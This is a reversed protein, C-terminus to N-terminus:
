RASSRDCSVHKAPDSAGANPHRDTRTRVRTASTRDADPSLSPLRVRFRTRTGAACDLEIDGGHLRVVARAYALGLGSGTSSRSDDARYYRDFVRDREGPAIGIGADCVDLVITSADRHVEVTVKGGPRSFKVANDVLNVCVRELATRDGAVVLGSSSRCALEIGQEEAAADFLEAVDCVLPGLEVPLHPTRCVGAEAESVDLAVDIMRALRDCEHVIDNAARAQADGAGNGQVSSEAIIRVRTLPSRLDHAINDTMDRMDRLLKRNRDAMANFADALNAVEVVGGGVSARRDLDGDRIAGAAASVIEIGRAARRSALWVISSALPVALAFTLAFAALLLEMMGDRGAFSEALWVVRDEGIPALITLADEERGRFGITRLEADGTELVRRAASPDADIDDWDSLDSALLRRGDGDLLVIFLEDLDGEAGERAIQDAVAADGSEAWGTRLFDADQGLDEGIELDYVARVSLYLLAFSLALCAVFTVAYLATLRGALTRPLRGRRDATRLINGAFTFFLMPSVCWALLYRREYPVAIVLLLVVGERWRLAARVDRWAHAWAVWIALPLRATSASVGGTAFSAATLWTSLPPKARFPEGPALQPTIWDETALMVRAIEAYRAETTGALPYADLTVFRVVFAFAILAGWLWTTSRVHNRADAPADSEGSEGFGDRWPGSM